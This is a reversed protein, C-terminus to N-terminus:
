GTGRFEKRRGFVDDTNTFGGSEPDGISKKPKFSQEGLNMKSHAFAATVGQM